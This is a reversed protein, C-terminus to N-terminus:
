TRYWSRLNRQYRIPPRRNIKRRCLSTGPVMWDATARHPGVPGGPTPMVFCAGGLLARLGVGTVPPWFPVPANGFGAQYDVVGSAPVACCGGFRALRRGPPFSVSSVPVLPYLYLSRFGSLEYDVPPTRLRDGCGRETDGWANRRVWAERGASSRFRM